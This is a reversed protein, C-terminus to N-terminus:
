YQYLCDAILTLSWDAGNLNLVNGKDDLLKIGLREINVPGFYNRINDQLSGSFEVILDGTNVGNIKVPLVCLVDSTSPSKALYNTNNNRNKMIENITYIQTQTLIRPASPLILPTDTYEQVYKSGILIGNDTNSGQDNLISKINSNGIGSCTYPLSPSYYNPLSIKTDNEGITVIEDNVHNQNFDDISLMLYKTGNLNLVTPAVNNKKSVSIYPVRFGMLWGLTQNLYYGNSTNYCSNQCKLIGHFDYFFITTNETVTFDATKGDITTGHFVAGYLQFTLLGNNPNYTVGDDVQTEEFNFGTHILQSNIEILFTSASYNGPTISIAIIDDGDIIWFCTNGYTVDIVYWTFPLQFSYLRISLVDKLRPFLTLTFNSSTQESGNSASRFQSDIVIHKSILNKLNPNLSDQRVPLVYSENVGLQERKMPDHQNSFVKIKQRRDTIRENQIPDNQKLAQNSDWKNQQNLNQTTPTGNNSLSKASQLLVNQVNQYFTAITPKKKKYKQILVNTKQLIDDTSSPDPSNALSLLEEITYNDTNLDNSTLSM